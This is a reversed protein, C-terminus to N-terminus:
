GRLEELTIVETGQKQVVLAAARLGLEAALPLSAGAAIAVAVTALVTDGAGTVDYVSRALAAFHRPATRPPHGPANELHTGPVNGPANQPVSDPVIDPQSAQADGPALRPADELHTGPAHRPANGFTTGSTAGSAPGSANGITPSSAPESEFLTMGDAGETVLLAGGGLEVLVIAAAALTDQHDLVPRHALLGLELRNPKLLTVGRWPFPSATKPDALVPKGAARALEILRPVLDASLVGKGYDSLVVADSVALASTFSALFAAAIADPLAANSEDDLRVVQQQHAVVRTKVSTPRAPDVLLSAASVGKQELCLVLSEAAADRGMVGLLTVTAGLGAINAATNAAGGPAAVERAQRVVPVPAEPSIRAVSGYIYRDLMVDGAVLLRAAPFRALLAAHASTSPPVTSRWEM